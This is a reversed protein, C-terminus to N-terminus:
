PFDGADFFDVLAGLDIEGVHDCWLCCVLVYFLCVRSCRLHAKKINLEVGKASSRSFSPCM